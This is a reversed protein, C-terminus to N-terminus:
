GAGAAPGGAVVGTILAGSDAGVGDVGALAGDVTATSVGLWAHEVSGDARLEDVIRAATDVPVAFAVGVNANVGSDAIQAPIGILEGDADLLAGGSNGHNVAADTQVAGTITFGNPAEISRGLGSVIGASASAQYGFPDGIALVPEGIVLDSSDGLPVPDLDAAPVDIDLLAIDTSKDTGVVTAPVTRGSSLEVRVSTAGDVVHENTLVGGEDDIIVGSGAATSSGDGPSAPSSAPVTATISVVGARRRAYVASFDVATASAAAAATTTAATPGDSAATTATRVAPAPTDADGGDLAAVVGGGVLAAVLAVAATGAIRTRMAGRGSGEADM